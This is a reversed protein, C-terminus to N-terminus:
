KSGGKFSQFVKPESANASKFNIAAFDHLIMSPDNKTQKKAKEWGFVHKLILPILAVTLIARPPAIIAEPLMNIVTRAANFKKPDKLFGSAKNQIFGDPNSIIKKLAVSIPHSIIFSLGFAIVGSAISHAAAYKKDDVNKKDTPLAMIAAPRLLCTLGLAFFNGFVAQNNTAMLLFNKVRESKFIWQNKANSFGSFSPEAPKNVSISSNAPVLNSKERIRYGQGKESYQSKPCSTLLSIHSDKLLSNIM